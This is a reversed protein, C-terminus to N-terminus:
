NRDTNVLHNGDHEVCPAEELAHGGALGHILHRSFVWPKTFVKPDEISVEWTIV